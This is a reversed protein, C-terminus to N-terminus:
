VENMCLWARRSSGDTMVRYDCTLALMFGGAFCHGNIAAITPVPVRTFQDRKLFVFSTMRPFTLLRALLPNFTM